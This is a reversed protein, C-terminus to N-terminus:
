FPARSHAGVETAANKLFRSISEFLRFRAQEPELPPPPALDPLRAHVAPVVQAIAAAGGGLQAVLAAPPLPEAYARILESWPWFAPAGEGEYCRGWVVSAGRGRAITALEEATRTKGIGASGPLLVLRGQGATADALAQRLADLERERGVFRDAQGGITSAPDM